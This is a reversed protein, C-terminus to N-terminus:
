NHSDHGWEIHQKATPMTKIDLRNTAHLMTMVGPDCHWTDFLM